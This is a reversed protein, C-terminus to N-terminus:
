HALIDRYYVDISQPGILNWIGNAMKRSFTFPQGGKPGYLGSQSKENRNYCSQGANCEM